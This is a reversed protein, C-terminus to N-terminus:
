LPLVEISPTVEIKERFSVTPEDINIKPGDNKKEEIEQESSKRDALPESDSIRPTTVKSGPNEFAKLSKSSELGRL